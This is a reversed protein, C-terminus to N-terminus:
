SYRYDYCKMGQLYPEGCKECYYLKTQTFLTETNHENPEQVYGCIPCKTTLPNDDINKRRNRSPYKFGRM